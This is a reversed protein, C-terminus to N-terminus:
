PLLGNGAPTCSKRASLLRTFGWLAGIVGLGNLVVGAYRWFESPWLSPHQYFAGYIAAVAGFMILASSLAYVTPKNNAGWVILVGFALLVLVTLLSATPGLAAKGVGMLYVGTVNWVCSLSVHILQLTLPASVNHQKIKM